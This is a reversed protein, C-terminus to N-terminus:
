RKENIEIKFACASCKITNEDIWELDGCCGATPCAVYKLDESTLEIM